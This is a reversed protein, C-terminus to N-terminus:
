APTTTTSSTSTCFSDDFWVPMGANEDCFGLLAHQDCFVKNRAVGDVAFFPDSDLTGLGIGLDFVPDPIREAALKSSTDETTQVVDEDGRALLHQVKTGCTTRTNAMNSINNPRHTEWM